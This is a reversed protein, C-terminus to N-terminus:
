KQIFLGEWLRNWKEQEELVTGPDVVTYDFKNMHTQVKTSVPVRGMSSLLEQGEPSLVFDAFALAAHPHPANRGVAIGQPRAVVPDVPVWDIPAGKRKLSEANSNYVTLGVPIEGAGILEALLIHGKRVDPEMAALKRFYALGAQEGWVKVLTAMWEADTAEIGIRGKWKPDTFGAYSRPLEEKRVKQTNYAVVFFNMRDPIWLRHPPVASAPLDALHPSHFEAFLKERAMMEMEPGNTEIVDFAYRRARAETLARQV